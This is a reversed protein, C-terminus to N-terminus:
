NDHVILPEQLDKYNCAEPIPNILELTQIQDTDVKCRLFKTITGGSFNTNKFVSSCLLEKVHLFTISALQFMALSVSINVAVINLTTYLSVVFVMLLNLLSLAETINNIKHNYPSCKEHVWIMVGLLICSIM